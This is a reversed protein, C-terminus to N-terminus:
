ENIQGGYESFGCCPCERRAEEKMVGLGCKPCRVYETGFKSEKWESRGADKNTASVMAECNDCHIEPAAELVKKFMKMCEAVGADCESSAMANDICGIVYEADIIKLFIVKL